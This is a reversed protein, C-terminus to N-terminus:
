FHYAVGVLAQHRDYKGNGDSLDTYRYELRATFNPTLYREVGGGILWADRDSVQSTTGEADTLTTRVRANTYGGRAYVLTNDAVIYGARASLSLSRRPDIRTVTDRGTRILEDDAGFGIDGEVGVVIRPAIEHDYGLFIGGNFSDKSKELALDGVPSEVTGVSDENWGAQVGTYPGNFDQAQAASGTIAIATAAIAAGMKFKSM